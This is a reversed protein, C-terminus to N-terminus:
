EIGYKMVDLQNQLSDINEKWKGLFDGDCIVKKNNIKTVVAVVVATRIRKKIFKLM